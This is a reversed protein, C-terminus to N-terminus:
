GNDKETFEEPFLIERLTMEGNSTIELERALKPGVGGVLAIQKFNAHTTGARIAMNEVIDKKKSKYYQYPTM